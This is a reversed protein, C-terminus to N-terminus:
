RPESKWRKLMRTYNAGITRIDELADPEFWKYRAIEGTPKPSGSRWKAAMCIAIDHRSPFRVPFVGIFEPKSIELGSERCHRFATEAFSKGRFMRGGILAWVNRYPLIVRWGLLFTRHRWVITDVCPIPMKKTVEDWCDQRILHVSNTVHTEGAQDKLRGM